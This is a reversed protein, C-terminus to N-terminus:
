IGGRFTFPPFVGDVFDLQKLEAIEEKEDKGVEFNQISVVKLVSIDQITLDVPRNLRLSNYLLV